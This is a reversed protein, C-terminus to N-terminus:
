RISVSISDKHARTCVPLETGGVIARVTPLSGRGRIGTGYLSLYVASNDSLEIPVAACGSGFLSQTCHFVEFPEPQMSGPFFRVATAGLPFLAAAVPRITVTSTLRNVLGSNLPVILRVLALGAAADGPVLYNIQSPTVALLPAEFTVGASDTLELGTELLRAPLPLAEASASGRALGTGYAIALSGPTIGTDEDAASVNRLIQFGNPNHTLEWLILTQMGYGGPASCSWHAPLPDETLSPQTIGPYYNYLDNRTLGAATWSISRQELYEAFKFALRTASARDLGACAPSGNPLLWDIVMVPARGALFGFSQEWETATRSGPDFSERAAYIVNPDNLLSGEIGALAGNLGEAIVPQMAGARRIADLLAQMGSYQRGGIMGGNRWLQWDAGTLAGSPHDPAPADLLDFIVGPRDKLQGAVSTWYDIAEATPLNIEHPADNALAVILVIRQIAAVSAIQRLRAIEREPDKQWATLSRTIRAANMNWSRMQFTVGTADGTSTDVFFPGANAGYLLIARQRGDRLINADARM